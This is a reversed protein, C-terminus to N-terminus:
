EDGKNEKELECMTKAGDQWFDMLTLTVKRVFTDYETYMRKDALQYAHSLALFTRDKTILDIM